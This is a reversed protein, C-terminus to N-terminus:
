GGILGCRTKPECVHAEILSFRHEVPMMTNEDPQLVGVAFRQNFMARGHEDFYLPDQSNLKKVDNAFYLSGFQEFLTSTWNKQFRLIQKVVELRDELKMETWVHELQVGPAKQMIIHEAGVANSRAESSWAYVKPVPTELVDRALLM